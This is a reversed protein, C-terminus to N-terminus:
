VGPGNGHGETSRRGPGYRPPRHLSEPYGQGTQNPGPRRRRKTVQPEYSLKQQCVMNVMHTILNAYHNVFTNTLEGSTGSSVLSGKMIFGQFYKFYSNRYLNIRGTSNMDDYYDEILAELDAVCEDVDKRWSYVHDAEPSKDLYKGM